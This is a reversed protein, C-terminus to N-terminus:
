KIVRIINKTDSTSMPFLPPLGNHSLTIANTLKCLNEESRVSSSADFEFTFQDSFKNLLIKKVCISPTIFVIKYPSM